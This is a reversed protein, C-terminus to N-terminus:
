LAAGHSTDGLRHLWRLGFREALAAREATSARAAIASEQIERIEGVRGLALLVAELVSAVSEELPDLAFGRALLAVARGPDNARLVRAARLLLQVAVASNANEAQAVLEDARDGPAPAEADALREAANPDGPDAEVARGYAATAQVS